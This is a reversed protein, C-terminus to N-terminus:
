NKAPAFSETPRVSSPKAPAIMGSETVSRTRSTRSRAPRNVRRFIKSLGESFRDCMRPTTELTASGCAFNAATGVMNTFSTHESLGERLLSMFQRTNGSTLALTLARYDFDAARIASVVGGWVAARGINLLYRSLLLMPALKLAQEGSVGAASLKSLKKDTKMRADLESASLTAIAELEGDKLNLSELEKLAAKESASWGQTEAVMVETVMQQLEAESLDSHVLVQASESFQGERHVQQAVVSVKTQAAIPLSAGALFLLTALASKLARAPSLFSRRASKEPVSQNM